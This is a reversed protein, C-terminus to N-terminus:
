HKKTLNPHVSTRHHELWRGMISDPQHATGAFAAFVEPWEVASESGNSGETLVALIQDEEVTWPASPVDQDDDM